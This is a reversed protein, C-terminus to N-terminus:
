ISISVNIKNIGKLYTDKVYRDLTLDPPFTTCQVSVSVSTLVRTTTILWHVGGM